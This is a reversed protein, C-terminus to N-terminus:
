CKSHNQENLSSGNPIRGMKESLPFGTKDAEVGFRLTYPMKESEHACEGLDDFM